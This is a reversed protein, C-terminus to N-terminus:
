FFLKENDNSGHLKRHCETCNKIAAATSPAQHIILADTHCQLCLNPVRSSTLRASASGHPTHCALCDEAVPDHEFRFPGAKETHCTVCVQRSSGFATSEANEGHPNHCSVCEMKKEKVPHRSAQSFQIEVDKHCSACLDTSATKKVNKKKKDVHVSHCNNCFVAAKGHDSHEWRSLKPNAAHCTLCQKAFDRGDASKFNIIGESSDEIHLSGAGHCAECGAPLGEKRSKGILLTRHPSSSLSDDYDAHCSLCTKMGVLEARPKDGAADAAVFSFVVAAAILFIPLKKNM